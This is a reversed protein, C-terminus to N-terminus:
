KPSLGLQAMFGALDFYEHVETIQRRELKFVGAVKMSFSKGTAPIAQGGPGLLPGKHTGSSTTELCVWDGQGFSRDKQTRLDPFARNFQEYYARVAARGKIPEPAAPNLDIVSEAHLRVFRDWDHANLAAIGSDIVRLNEAITVRKGGEENPRM